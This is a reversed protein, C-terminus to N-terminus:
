RTRALLNAQDGDLAIREKPAVAGVFKHRAEGREEIKEPSEGDLGPFNVFGVVELDQKVFWSYAQFPEAEPNRFVLGSGNLPIWEGRMNDAVFGYLGTPGSTQPHFTLAQTSFFLYYLGDRWVIHPRELENNVGDAHLLPPLLTLNDAAAGVAAGVAGDFNTVSDALSASFVLYLRNDAPDVFRSPDRFAKIFGHEGTLQGLTSKYHPEPKILERHRSWERVRMDGGSGLLAGSTQFIRQIYSVNKEDRMGAATYWVDLRAQNPLYTACGAWERGGPSVAAAFLPGHDRWQRRWRSLLRLRAADHRQRPELDSPASLGLWLEADDVVAIEGSHLLVPSPDWIYIDALERSCETASFVATSRERGDGLLCLHERRWSSTM